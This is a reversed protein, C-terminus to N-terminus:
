GFVGLGFCFPSFDCGSLAGIGGYYVLGSVAEGISLTRETKQLFAAELARRLFHAGWLYLLPATSSPSGNQQWFWGYTLLSSGYLAATTIATPLSMKIVLDAELRECLHKEAFASGEPTQMVTIPVIKSYYSYSLLKVSFISTQLKNSRNLPLPQNQSVSAYFGHLNNSISDVDINDSSYTLKRDISVFSTVKTQQCDLRFKHILICNLLPKSSNLRTILCV